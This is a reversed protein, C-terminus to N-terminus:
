STSSDSAPETNILRLVADRAYTQSKGFQRPVLQGSRVLRGLSRIGDGPARPTEQGDANAVVNLRLLRVAELGTLLPPIPNNTHPFYEM